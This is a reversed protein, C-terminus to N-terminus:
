TRLYPSRAMGPLTSTKARGPCLTLTGYAGSTFNIRTHPFLPVTLRTRVVSTRRNPSKSHVDVDGGSRLLQQLLAAPDHGDVEDRRHTSALNGLHRDVGIGFTFVESRIAVHSVVLELDQHGGFQDAQGLGHADVDLAPQALTQDDLEVVAGAAGACDLATVPLPQLPALLSSHDNLRRMYLEATEYNANQWGQRRLPRYGAGM